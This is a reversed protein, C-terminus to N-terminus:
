QFSNKVRQINVNSLRHSYFELRLFVGEKKIAVLSPLTRVDIMENFFVIMECINVEDAEDSVACVIATCALLIVHVCHMHLPHFIANSVQNRM